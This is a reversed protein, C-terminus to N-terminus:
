EDDEAEDVAVDPAANEDAEDDLDEDDDNAATRAQPGHAAAKRLRRKAVEQEAREESVPVGRITMPAMEKFLAELGEGEVTVVVDGLPGPGETAFSVRGAFAAQKHLRFTARAGSAELSRLLVRRAADLIKQKRLLRALPQLSGTRGVVESRSEEFRADPFLQHLARRVKTPDESAHLPTRIVVDVM